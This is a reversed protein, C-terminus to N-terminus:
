FGLSSGPIKAKVKVSYPKVRYAIVTVPLRGETPRHERPGARGVVITVIMIMVIGPPPPPPPLDRAEASDGSLGGRTRRSLLRPAAARGNANNGDEECSKRRPVVRLQM